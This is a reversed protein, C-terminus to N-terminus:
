TMSFVAPNTGEEYYLAKSRFITSKTEKDILKEINNKLADIDQQTSEKKDPDMCNHIDEELQEVQKSFTGRVRCKVTILLTQPNAEINEAITNAITNKYKLTYANDSLLSM